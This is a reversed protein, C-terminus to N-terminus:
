KRRGGGHDRGSNHILGGQGLPALRLIENAEYDSRDDGTDFIDGETPQIM